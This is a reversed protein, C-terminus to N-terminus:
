LNTTVFIAVEPNLLYQWEGSVGQKYAGIEFHLTAIGCDLRSSYNNGTINDAVVTVSKEDTKFKWPQRNKASPAVRACELAVRMWDHKIGNIANNCIEELSKRKATGLM